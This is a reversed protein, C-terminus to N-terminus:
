WTSKSWDPLTKRRVYESVSLRAAKARRVLEAHADQTWRVATLVSAPNPSKPAAM